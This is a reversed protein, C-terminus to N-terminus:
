KVLDTQIIDCLPPMVKQLPWNIPKKEKAEDEKTTTKKVVKKPKKEKAEDKKTTTKKVVKKPKEKVVVNKPEAVLKERQENRQERQEYQEQFNLFIDEIFVNIEKKIHNLSHGIEQELAQRM